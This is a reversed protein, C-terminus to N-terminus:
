QKEIEEKFRERANLVQKINKAISKHGHSLQDM